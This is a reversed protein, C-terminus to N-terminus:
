NQINILDCYDQGREPVPTKISLSCATTAAPLPLRSVETGLSRRGTPHACAGQKATVVHVGDNTKDTYLVAKFTSFPPTKTISRTLYKLLTFVTKQKQKKYYTSKGVQYSLKESAVLFGNSLYNRKCLVDLEKIAGKLEIEHQKQANNTL